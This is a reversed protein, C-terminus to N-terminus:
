INKRILSYISKVKEFEMQNNTGIIFRDGNLIFKQPKIREVDNWFRSTVSLEFTKRSENLEVSFGSFNVYIDMSNFRQKNEFILWQDYIDFLSDQSLESETIQDFYAIENEYIWGRNLESKTPLFSDSDFSVISLYKNLIFEPFESILYKMNDNNSLIEIWYYENHKGSNIM